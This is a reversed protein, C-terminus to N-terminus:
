ETWREDFLKVKTAYQNPDEVVTTDRTGLNDLSSGIMICRTGGYLM